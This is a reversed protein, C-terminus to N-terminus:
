DPIKPVARRSCGYPRASGFHSKAQTSNSFIAGSVPPAYGQDAVVQTLQSAAEM